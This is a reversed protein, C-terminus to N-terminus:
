LNYRKNHKRSQFITKLFYINDEGIVFPVLYIYDRINVIYCFQKKYNCSPNKIVDVVQGNDMAFIIEEFGVWRESKLIENKVEDWEFIIKDIDIEM